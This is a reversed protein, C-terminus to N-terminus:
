NYRRCNRYPGFVPRKQQSSVNDYAEKYSNSRHGAEAAARLVSLLTRRYLCFLGFAGRLIPLVHAGRKVIQRTEARDFSHLRGIPPGDDM